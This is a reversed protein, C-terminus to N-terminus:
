RHAVGIGKAISSRPARAPSNILALSGDGWPAMGETKGVM